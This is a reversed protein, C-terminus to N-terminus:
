QCAVYARIQSSGIVVSSIGTLLVYTGFKPLPKTPFRVIPLSGIDVFMDLLLPFSHLNSSDLM